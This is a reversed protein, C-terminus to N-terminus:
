VLSLNGALLSVGKPGPYIEGKNYRYCRLRDLVGLIKWEAGGAPGFYNSETIFSLDHPLYPAVRKFLLNAFAPDNIVTYCNNRPDERQM